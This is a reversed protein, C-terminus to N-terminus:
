PSSGNGKPPNSPNFKNVKTREPMADAAGIEIWKEQLANYYEDVSEEVKQM